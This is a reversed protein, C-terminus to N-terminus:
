PSTPTSALSRSLKDLEKAFLPNQPFEGVLEELLTLALADQKERLAVLALLIKAFPRLYDGYIAAVQLQMIGRRSDGRIGGFRLFFRKHRPLSGIIYNAAGLAFYADDADPRVALLHEAYAESERVRKLSELHRKQILGAYDALMGTTITLVFLADPDEPSVELRHKALDEARMNAALFHMERTADPQGEIGGLLRHNNLFFEFTLVGQYYFEEFLYSAAESSSALPDDPHTKEWASFQARAEEFRLEYLFRFGSEIEPPHSAQSPTSAM